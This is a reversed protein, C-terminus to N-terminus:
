GLRMCTTVTEPVPMLLNASRLPLRTEVPAGALPVSTIARRRMSAEPSSGFLSMVRSRRETASLTFASFSPFISASKQTPPTGVAAMLSRAEVGPLVILSMSWPSPASAM